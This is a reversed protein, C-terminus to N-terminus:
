RAKPPTSRPEVPNIEISDLRAEPVFLCTNVIYLTLSWTSNKLSKFEDVALALQRFSEYLIYSCLIYYEFPITWSEELFRARPTRILM